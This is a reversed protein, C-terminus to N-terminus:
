LYIREYAGIYNYINIQKDALSLALQYCEDVLGQYEYEPLDFLFLLKYFTLRPDEIELDIMTKYNQVAAYVETFTANYNGTLQFKANKCNVLKMQEADNTRVSELKLNLFELEDDYIVKNRSAIKWTTELVQKAELIANQYQKDNIIRNQRMASEYESEARKVVADQKYILGWTALYQDRTKVGIETILDKEFSM